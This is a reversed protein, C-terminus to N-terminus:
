HSKRITEQIQDIVKELKSEKAFCQRMTCALYEDDESKKTLVYPYSINEIKKRYKVLNEQKSKLSVVKLEQMLFATAAAPADSQKLRLEKHLSQLTANALKEYRFSEKLTAMKLINQAMKSLPSTYYKDKLTAKINLGDDSLYWVGDRYFKAKAKNLLYEAFDLKEDEFTVEYGAILASILFSYDELFGLQEPKKDGITQHYLEGREFMLGTLATLHKEAKIKYKEDVVSAKFLAEIMLSNWATNIKKDIFPFEKTARVKLLEIKFEKFGKPREDGYFNLHVREEFNGDITFELSEEIEKAHPNNKLADRVELPTFLFFEGEKHDTDADSASYYLDNKLFRYDLMAVSEEVVDRYLKKNSLLYGRLYLPILEAQNYLMKEFHPIEWAADVTYRYFGGGIHDYLGRLAMTDLMEYSFKLLKEDENIQAIDMMLSLKSAEPFKKSRGFGGYISDYSKLISENLIEVSIDQSEQRLVKKTNNLINEIEEVYEQAANKEYAAGLKDLLTDLGESYSERKPPIYTTIYFPKKEATLFVSLPWGGVRKKLKEHLLQYHVDLHPMEEKDVKISIFYKNFLQALKEDEFSERAMVHCWHCTSYGISLFIAKTEAKARKFAADGWPMWEITNLEHQKLYPSTEFQLNNKFESAYLFNLSILLLISSIIRM